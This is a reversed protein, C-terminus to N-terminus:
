DPDIQDAVITLMRALVKLIMKTNADAASYTEVWQSITDQDMVKFLQFDPDNLTGELNAKYEAIKHEFRAM